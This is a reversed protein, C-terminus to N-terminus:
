IYHENFMDLITDCALKTERDYHESVDRLRDIDLKSKIYDEEDISYLNFLLLFICGSNLLNIIASCAYYIEEFYNNNILRIFDNIGRKGIM